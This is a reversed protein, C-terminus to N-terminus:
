GHPQNAVQAVPKASRASRGGPQGAVQSVLWLSFSLQLVLKKKEAAAKRRAVASSGVVAGAGPAVVWLARHRLRRRRTLTLTLTLHQSTAQM